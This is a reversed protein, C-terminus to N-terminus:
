PNCHGCRMALSRLRPPAESGNLSLPMRADRRLEAITWGRLKIFVQPTSALVAAQSSMLLRNGRVLIAAM